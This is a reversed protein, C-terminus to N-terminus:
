ATGANVRGRRLELRRAETTSADATGDAKLMVGYIDSAARPSVRFSAVDVAVQQPDRRLPDGYGGGGQWHTFYVDDAAMDTEVHSPLIEHQGDIEELTGPIFGKALMTRVNTGRM